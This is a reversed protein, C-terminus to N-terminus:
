TRCGATLSIQHYFDALDVRSRLPRNAAQDLLDRAHKTPFQEIVIERNLPRLDVVLRWRQPEGAKNPKPVVFATSLM